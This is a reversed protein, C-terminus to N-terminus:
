KLLEQFTNRLKLEADNDDFHIVAQKITEEAVDIAVQSVQRDSVAIRAIKYVENERELDTFRDALELQVHTQVRQGERRKTLYSTLDPDNIQPFMTVCTSIFTWGIIRVKDQQSKKAVRLLWLAERLTVHPFVLNVPVPQNAKVGMQSMLNRGGIKGDDCYTPDALCDAYTVTFM